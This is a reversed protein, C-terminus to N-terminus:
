AVLSKRLKYIWDNSATVREIEKALSDRSYELQKANAAKQEALWDDGSLRKAEPWITAGCDFEISDKLQGLMFNKFEQHGETPPKWADVKAFMALYKDRLEQNKEAYSDRSEKKTLYDAKAAAEADAPSMADIRDREAEVRALSEKYHASPKHATIEADMPEDRMHLCAGMARACRMVFREFTIDGAIAATYGTPM